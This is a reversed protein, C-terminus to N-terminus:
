ERDVLHVGQCIDDLASLNLLEVQAVITNRLNGFKFIELLEGVQFNEPELTQLNKLTSFGM